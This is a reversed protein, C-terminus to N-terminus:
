EATILGESNEKFTWLYKLPHYEPHPEEPPTDPINMYPIVKFMALREARMKKWRRKFLHWNNFHLASRARTRDPLKEFHILYTFFSKVYKLQNKPLDGLEILLNKFRDYARLVEDLEFVNSRNDDFKFYLSEIDHLVSAIGRIDYNGVPFESYGYRRAGTELVQILELKKELVLGEYYYVLDPMFDAITSFNEYIMNRFCNPDQWDWGLPDKTGLSCKEETIKKIREALVGVSMMHGIYYTLEYEDITRNGDSSKTFVDIETLIKSPISEIGPDFEKLELGIPGFDDVLEKLDDTFLTKEKNKSYNRVILKTLLNRWNLTSLSNLSHRDTHVFLIQEDNGHFQPEFLFLRKLREVRAKERSSLSRSFRDAASWYEQEAVGLPDLNSEEFIKELYIQSKGWHSFQSFLFQIDKKEISLQVESDKKSGLWKKVFRSLTFKITNKNIDIWSSPFSDILRNVELLSLGKPHVGLIEILSRKIEKGIALVFSTHESKYDVLRLDISSLAVAAGLFLGFHRTLEPWEKYEIENVSGNVIIKKLALIFAGYSDKIDLELVKSIEQVFLNIDEENISVGSKTPRVKLLAKTFDEGAKSLVASLHLLPKPLPDTKRSRIDPILATTIKKSMQILEIMQGLEEFTLLDPDGGLISSKLRFGVAILDLNISHDTVLFSSIFGKMESASFGRPDVSIAFDKFLELSETACDWKSEWEDAEINGDIYRGIVEPLGNLCDQNELTLLKEIDPKQGFLGCSSLLFLSLLGSFLHLVKFRM